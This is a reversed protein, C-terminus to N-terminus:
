DKLKAIADRKVMRELIDKLTDNSTKDFFTGVVFVTKGAKMRRVKHPENEIEFQSETPMDIFDKAPSRVEGKKDTAIFRISNIIRNIIRNM